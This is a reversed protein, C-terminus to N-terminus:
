ANVEGIAAEAAQLFKGHESQPDCASLLRTVKITVLQHTTYSDIRFLARADERSIRKGSKWANWAASAEMRAVERAARVTDISGATRRTASQRESPAKSPGEKAAWDWGKKTLRWGDRGSGSLLQGNKIKKADSLSVRVIELNAQSKYKRWSFLAPALQHCRMAIDETDVAKSAGGLDAVVLVVLEFLRAPPTLVKSAQKKKAVRM